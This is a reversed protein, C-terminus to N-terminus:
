VVIFRAEPNAPNKVISIEILNCDTLKTYCTKDKSCVEVSNIVEVKVSFSNYSGKLIEEKVLKSSELDTRLKCLIFLGREDVETRLKGYQKIMVGVQTSSHELNINWYKEGANLFKSLMDILTEIPIIDGHLDIGEVSAYGAIVVGSDKSKQIITFHKFLEKNELIRQNKKKLTVNEGYETLRKILENM